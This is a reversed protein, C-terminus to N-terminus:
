VGFWWKSTFSRKFKLTHIFKGLVKLYIKSKYQVISNVVMYYEGKKLCPERKSQRKKPLFKLSKSRFSDNERINLNAETLRGHLKKQSM